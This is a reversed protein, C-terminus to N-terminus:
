LNFQTPGANTGAEIALGLGAGGYERSMSNDAQLFPDFISALKVEAIGIGTDAVSVRVIAEKKSRSQLEARIKVEGHHTFELANNM